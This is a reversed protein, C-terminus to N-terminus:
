FVVQDPAAPLGTTRRRACWAALRQDWRFWEGVVRLDCFADQIAREVEENGYLFAVLVPADTGLEAPYKCGSHRQAIQRLRRSVDSSCGIKVLDGVRIMYVM